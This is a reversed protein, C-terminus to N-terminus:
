IKQSPRNVVKDKYVPKEENGYPNTLLDINLLSSLVEYHKSVVNSLEIGDFGNENNSNIAGTSICATLKGMINGESDISTFIDLKFSDREIYSGCKSGYCSSNTIIPKKEDESVCSGFVSSFPIKVKQPDVDISICASEKSTYSPPILVKYPHLDSDIYSNYKISVAGIHAIIIPNYEMLVEFRIEPNESNSLAKEVRKEIYNAVAEKVETEISTNNNEDATLSITPIEEESIDINGIKTIRATRIGTLADIEGKYIYEHTDFRSGVTSYGFKGTRKDFTLGKPTYGVEANNKDFTYLMDFDRSYGMAKTGRDFHAVFSNRDEIYDLGTIDQGPSIHIENIPNIGEEPARCSIIRDNALFIYQKGEDLIFTSSSKTPLCGNLVPSTYWKEGDRVLIRFTAFYDNNNEDPFREIFISDDVGKINERIGIPSGIGEIYSSYEEKKM